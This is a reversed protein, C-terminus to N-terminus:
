PYFYVSANNGGTCVVPTSGSCFMTYTLNTVPSYVTLAGPGYTQYTQDVNFAFACSTNPGVSVGGGCSTQGAGSGPAAHAIGPTAQVGGGSTGGAKKQAKPKSQSSPSSVQKRTVTITTANPTDGPASGIVDITNAGSQLSVDGTFVGNGVVAAQGDIQVTANPPTVTGRVTVNGVTVVSGGAPEAIKLVVPASAVATSTTTTTSTSTNSSGCGALGIAVLAAVGFHKVGIADPGIKLGMPDDVGGVAGSFM